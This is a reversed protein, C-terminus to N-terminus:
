NQMATAKNEHTNKETLLQFLDDVCQSTKPATRQSHNASQDCDVDGEFIDLSLAQQALQSDRPNGHYFQMLLLFGTFVGHNEVQPRVDFQFLVKRQNPARKVHAHFLHFTTLLFNGTVAVNDTPEFFFRFSYPHTSSSNVSCM